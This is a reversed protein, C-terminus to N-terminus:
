WEANVRVQAFDKPLAEIDVKLLERIVPPMVEPRKASLNVCVLRIQIAHVLAEEGAILKTIRQKVRISTPSMGTIRTHVTLRDDLFAPMVYKSYHESVVFAYGSDLMERFSYGLESLMQSRARELYKLYNPHFVVGGMDCDEFNVCLEYRFTKEFIEHVAESGLV